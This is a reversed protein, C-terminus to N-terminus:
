LWNDLSRTITVAPTTTAPNVQSKSSAKPATQLVCQHITVQCFSMRSSCLEGVYNIIFAVVPSRSLLSMLKPCSKRWLWLLTQCLLLSLVWRCVRLFVLFKDSTPYLLMTAHFVALPRSMSFLIFPLNAPIPSVIAEPPEVVWGVVFGVLPVELASAPSVNLVKTQRFLGPPLQSIVLVTHVVVFINIWDM